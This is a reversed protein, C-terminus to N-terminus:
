YNVTCLRLPRRGDREPFRETLLGPAVSGVTPSRDLHRRRVSGAQVHPRAPSADGWTDGPAPLAKGPGGFGHAHLQRSKTGAQRNLVTARRPSWQISLVLPVETREERGPKAREELENGTKPLRGHGSPSSTRILATRRSWFPRGHSLATARIARTRAFLAVSPKSRRTPKWRRRRLSSRSRGSGSGTWTTM